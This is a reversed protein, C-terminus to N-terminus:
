VLSDLLDQAGHYPYGTGGKISRGIHKNDVTILDIGALQCAKAVYPDQTNTVVITRKGKLDVFDRITMKKAM